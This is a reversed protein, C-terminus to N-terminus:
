SVSRGHNGDTACTIVTQSVIEDFEHDLLDQVSPTKGTIESVKKQLQRAVAFSGGLAKFSKLQFRKSEDKYWIKAVNLDASLSILNHMPTAEYGPWQSIEDIAEATNELSAISKLREPYLNAQDAKSNSFFTLNGNVSQM